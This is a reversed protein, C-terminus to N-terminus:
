LGLISVSLMAFLQTKCLVPNTAFLSRYRRKVEADSADITLDLEKYYDKQM